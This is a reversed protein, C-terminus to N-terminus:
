ESARREARLFAKVTRLQRDIERDYKDREKSVLRAAVTREKAVLKPDYGWKTIGPLRSSHITDMLPGGFEEELERFVAVPNHRGLIRRLDALVPESRALRDKASDYWDWTEALGCRTAASKMEQTLKGVLQDFRGEQEYPELWHSEGKARARCLDRVKDAEDFTWRSKDCLSNLWALLKEDRDALDDPVYYLAKRKSYEDLFAEADLAGDANANDIQVALKQRASAIAAERPSGPKSTRELAIRQWASDV